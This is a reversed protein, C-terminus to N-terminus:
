HLDIFMVDSSNIGMMQQKISIFNDSNIQIIVYKPIIQDINILMSRYQFNIM